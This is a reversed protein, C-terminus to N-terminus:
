KIYTFGLVALFWKLGGGIVVLSGIIVALTTIGMKTLKGSEVIVQLMTERVIQEVDSKTAINKMAGELAEIRELETKM